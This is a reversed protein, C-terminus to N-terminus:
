VMDDVNRRMVIECGEVHMDLLELSKGELDDLKEIYNRPIKRWKRDKERERETM